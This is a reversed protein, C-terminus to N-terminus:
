TASKIKNKFANLQKSIKDIWANIKISWKEDRPLYEEYEDPVDIGFQLFLVALRDGGMRGTSMPKKDSNYFTVSLIPPKSFLMFNGLSFSSADAVLRKLEEETFYRSM